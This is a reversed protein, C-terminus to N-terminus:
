ENDTENFGEFLREVDTLIRGAERKDHVEEESIIQAIWEEPCDNVETVQLATCKFDSEGIDKLLKKADAGTIGGARYMGGVRDLLEDDTFTFPLPCERHIVKNINITSSLDLGDSTAVCFHEGVEAEFHCYPCEFCTAVTIDIKRAM